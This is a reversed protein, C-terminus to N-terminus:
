EEELELIAKALDGGAAKLAEEAKERSVGTQEMVMNVDDESLEVEVPGGEESVEGSIQFTEQGRMKMRMVQPNKVVIDGSAAKIIVETADVEAMDMGMQRMMRKMQKPNMNMGPMM